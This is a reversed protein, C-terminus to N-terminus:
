KCFIEETTTEGTIPNFNEITTYNYEPKYDNLQSVGVCINNEDLQAYLVM